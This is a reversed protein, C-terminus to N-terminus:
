GAMLLEAAPDRDEPEYRRRLEMVKGRVENLFIVVEKELEAIMDDDRHVRQCFFRMSEPMRPDYSVFDCWKRGTCNLQWQMQTMYKGPINGGTLTEIHTASTPCKIEILGDEGVMGDPSAHTGGITPHRVIGVEVVEAARHFEYAKRAEPEMETGWAMAANTFKNPIPAGTLQEIVLDAMVNDRSAAYGSKTKAIVEAVRSAGLSGARANLWEESGQVLDLSNM